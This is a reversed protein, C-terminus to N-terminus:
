QQAERVIAAVLQGRVLDAEEQRDALGNLVVAASVGSGPDHFAFTSGLHGSHGLSGPGLSPGFGHDALDVMFGAAFACTRDLVPDDRRRSCALLDLLTAPTPVGDVVKGAIVESVAAYLDALARATAYAGLCTRDLCAQHPSRDHVGAFCESPLGQATLGIGAAEDALKSPEFGFRIDDALGLPRLLEDRVFTRASCGAVEEIVLALLATGAYESYGPEARGIGELLLAPRQGLPTLHVEAMRPAGLPATHALVERLPFRCHGLGAGALLSGVPQDLDVLGRDVLHLCALGVIPKSACHTNFKSAQQMPLGQLDAGAALDLRLRDARVSVQLGTCHIREAALRAAVASIDGM